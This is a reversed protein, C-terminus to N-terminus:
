PSDSWGNTRRLRSNGVVIALRSSLRELEEKDPLPPADPGASLVLLGIARGGLLLPLCATNAPLHALHECRLHVWGNSTHARHTRLAWCGDAQLFTTHRDRLDVHSFEVQDDTELYLTPSLTPLLSPLAAWLVERAESRTACHQLLDAIRSLGADFARDSSLEHLRQELQANVHRLNKEALRQDQIDRLNVVLGHVAPDNLLNLGSAEFTRKPGGRLPFPLDWRARAGPYAALERLARLTPPHDGSQTWDTFPRDVLQEAPLGLLREANSAASRVRGEADLIVVVESSLSILAESRQLAARLRGESEREATVDIFSAFVPSRPDDVIRRAEIDIWTLRGDPQHVGMRDRHVEGDRLARMSPHEEGVFPTGDSRISRWRPDISTRGLMQDRTLGLIRVAADNAELIAGTASQIVLGVPIARLLRGALADTRVLERHLAQGDDLDLLTARVLPGAASARRQARVLASRRDGDCRLLPLPGADGATPSPQDEPGTVPPPGDPFLAAVTRGVLAGPAAGCLSEAAANAALICGAEDWVLVAEGPVDAQAAEAPPRLDTPPASM